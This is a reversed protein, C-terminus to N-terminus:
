SPVVLRREPAVLTPRPSAQGSMDALKMAYRHVLFAASIYDALSTAPTGQVSTDGNDHFTIVIVRDAPLINGDRDIDESM